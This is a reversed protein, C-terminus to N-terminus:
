LLDPLCPCHCCAKPVCLQTHGHSRCTDGTQMNLATCYNLCARTTYPPRVRQHHNTKLLIFGLLPCGQTGDTGRRRMDM